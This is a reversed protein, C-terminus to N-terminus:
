LSSCGFIGTWSLIASVSFAMEFLSTLYMSVSYKPLVGLEEGSALFCESSRSRQKLFRIQFGRFGILKGISTDSVSRNRFSDLSKKLTHRFLVLSHEGFWVAM